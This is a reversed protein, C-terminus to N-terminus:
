PMISKSYMTQNFFFIIFIILSRLWHKKRLRNKKKEINTVSSFQIDQFLCVKVIRCSHESSDYSMDYVPINKILSSFKGSLISIMDESHYHKSVCVKFMQMQSYFSFLLSVRFILHFEEVIDHRAFFFPLTLQLSLCM